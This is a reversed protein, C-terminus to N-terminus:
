LAGEPGALREWASPPPEAVELESIDVWGEHPGVRVRVRQTAPGYGEARVLEGEDVTLQGVLVVGLTRLWVMLTVM